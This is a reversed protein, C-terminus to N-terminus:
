KQNTKRLWVTQGGAGSSSSTASPAPVEVYITGNEVKTNLRPLPRLYHVGWNGTNTDIGGSATFTSGHCPCYFTRDSNQWNVICGMHTCAASMAIITEKTPDSNDRIVYGVIANASFPVADNGLKALTTVPHWITPVDAAILPTDTPTYTATSANNSGVQEIVRDIGAGIALSAAVAAGGAFLARRRSVRSPQKQKGQKGQKGSSQVATVPQQLEQELKAQLAQAFEPRPESAEPSASRFLAAMRYVRAQAPTMEAPPHAIHGAQLEELYQELELYDEFREQDEGSM